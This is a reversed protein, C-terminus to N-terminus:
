ENSPSWILPDCWYKDLRDLEEDTVDITCNNLDESRYFNYVTFREKKFIDEVENDTIIPWALELKM